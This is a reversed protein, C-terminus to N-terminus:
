RMVILAPGVWLSVAVVAAVMLVMVAVVLLLRMFLILAQQFRSM